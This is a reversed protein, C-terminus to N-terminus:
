HLGMTSPGSLQGGMFRSAGLPNVEASINRRLDAALERLTKIRERFDIEIGGDDKYTVPEQAFKTALSQALKAVGENFGDATIWGSIEENSYQWVPVGMEDVIEGVDALLRRARHLPDTPALEPNFDFTTAM